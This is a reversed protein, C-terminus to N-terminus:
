VLEILNYKRNNASKRKVVRIALPEGDVLLEPIAVASSIVSNSITGYIKDSTKFYCVPKVVGDKDPKETIYVGIVSIETGDELDNLSHANSTNFVDKADFNKRVEEM